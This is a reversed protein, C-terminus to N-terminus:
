HLGAALRCVHLNQILCKGLRVNDSARRLERWHGQTYIRQTSPLQPGRIYM